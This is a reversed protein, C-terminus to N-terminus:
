QAPVIEGPKVPPFLTQYKAMKKQNKQQLDSELEAKIQTLEQQIEPPIQDARQLESGGRRPDQKEGTAVVMNQFTAPSYKPVVRETIEISCTWDMNGLSLEYHINSSLYMNIVNISENTLQISPSSGSDFLIWTNPSGEIPINCIIDTDTSQELIWEYSGQPQSLSDSRIYIRNTPHVNVHRASVLDTTNNFTLVSSPIFGMAKWFLPSSSYTFTFSYTQNSTLGLTVFGTTSDYTFDFTINHAYGVADLQDKFEQLLTLITYNGAPISVSIPTTVSSHLYSGSVVMTDPLQKFSYPICATLVRATFFHEKSQLVIPTKLIYSCYDTDQNTNSRNESNFYLIYSKVVSM